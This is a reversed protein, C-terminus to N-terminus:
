PKLLTASVASESVLDAAAEALAVLQNILEQTLPDLSTMSRMSDILSKLERHDQLATELNM